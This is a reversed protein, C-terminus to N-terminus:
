SSQLSFVIPVAVWSEVAEAGRKAPVFRWREVAAKAADDLRAFGSSQKIDVTLAAGAASVRVRLMVKGEEGLRRSATPYVPKPNSLYDADFRAGTIAPAPAAEIVAPAPPQPAVAFASTPAPTEPAATMVPPPKTPRQPAKPQAPPLDKKLEPEILRVVLDSAMERVEPRAALELAAWLLAVHATLVLAFRLGRRAPSAQASFDDPWQKSFATMLRACDTGIPLGANQAFRLARGQPSNDRTVAHRVSVKIGVSIIRAM